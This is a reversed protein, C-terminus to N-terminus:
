SWVNHITKLMEGHVDCGAIVSRGFIYDKGGEFDTVQGGAETVLLVGAAVDWSNLNYEFFGEFRGCAVYALDVAASGIRRLGHTSEMFSRLIQMYEPMKEFDYYPFGTALLSENLDGVRSVKIKKGNLFAGRDKVAHFCEDLNIEYVVGLVPMEKKLLAVSVSYVPIKHIFNTTGDLPDIIWNYNESAEVDSDEETIFGADPFIESLGKILKEEASKDVYSVLNNLGKYEIKSSDFSRNENQIFKGVDKILEKTQDKIEVFDM